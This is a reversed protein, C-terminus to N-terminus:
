LGVSSGFTLQCTLDRHEATLEGIARRAPEIMDDDISVHFRWHAANQAARLHERLAGVCGTLTGERVGKLTLRLCRLTPASRLMAGMAEDFRPEPERVSDRFGLVKLHLTHVRALTAGAMAAAAVGETMAISAERVSKPLALLMDPHGTARAVDFAFTLVKSSPTLLSWTASALDDANNQSLQESYASVSLDDHVRVASRLLAAARATSRNINCMLSANECGPMSGVDFLSLAFSDLDYRADEEREAGGSAAISSLLSWTSPNSAFLTLSLAPIRRNMNLAAGMDTGADDASRVNVLELRNASLARVFACMNGAVHAIVTVTHSIRSPLVRLLAPGLAASAALRGGVVRVRPDSLVRAAVVHFAPGAPSLIDLYLATNFEVRMVLDRRQLADDVFEFAAILCREYAAGGAAPPVADNVSITLPGTRRASGEARLAEANALSFDLFTPRRVGSM